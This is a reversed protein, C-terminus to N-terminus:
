CEDLRHVRGALPLPDTSANPHSVPVQQQTTKQVAGHRRLLRTNPNPCREQRQHTVSDDAPALSTRHATSRGVDDLSFWLHSVLDRRRSRIPAATRSRAGNKINAKNSSLYGESRKWFRGQRSWTGSCAGSQRALGGPASADSAGCTARRAAIRAGSVTQSSQLTARGSSSAADSVVGMGGSWVPDTDLLNSRGYDNASTSGTASSRSAASLVTSAFCCRPSRWRM